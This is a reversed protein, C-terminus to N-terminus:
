WAPIKELKEREKEVATKADPIKLAQPMPIFKHVLSCHAVSGMGKATIHDQHPKYGAGELKPRTSEDADVVCAYKTKRKGLNRHTEGSSKILIKCPMAAPMPVELKRRAAKMTLKFEEDDPEIFFIGWLQRANDLKTKEIIWRPKAKKKAADSMHKWMDPWVNDPRSTTQKRALRVVSWTYGDLPRESLLIFRTCGTWADSLEQEGDVNWYGEINKELLVDLSTKTPRTVDIYKMPIPFSEERCTCNLEPNLTIVIFSNEQLLGSTVKLKRMM